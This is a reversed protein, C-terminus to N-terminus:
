FPIDDNFDDLPLKQSVLAAKKNVGSGSIIQFKKAIVTTNCYVKGLHEKTRSSVEGVIYIMMGPAWATVDEVSKGFFTVSVQKTVNAWKNDKGKAGQTFSLMVEILSLTGIQKVEGISDIVGMIRVESFNLTNM